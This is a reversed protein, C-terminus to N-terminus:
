AGKPQTPAAQLSRIQNALDRWGSLAVACAYAAGGALVCAILQPLPALEVQRTLAVAGAMVIACGVSQRLAALMAGPRMGVARASSALLPVGVLLTASLLGAATGTLGFWVGAGVGALTAGALGLANRFQLDARGIGLLVASTVAFVCLVFSVPALMALPAGVAVWKPGLVAEVLLDATMALGAALPAVALSVGSLAVGYLRVREARSGTRAIAPFIVMFLPGGVLMEPLRIIQYAMSYVGLPGVGLARGVILNDLNRALFDAIRSGLSHVGFALHPRCRAADFRLRPTFGAQWSVIALKVTWACLQQGVLAWAGWGAYAGGVAVLAGAATSGVDGAAFATFRGASHLRANPVTVLASMVVVPALAVILPALQPESALWAFPASLLALGGALALSLALTLWFITSETTADLEKERVLAGGLGADAVLNTVLVFPMALAVLGYPEPGLLRALVPLLVLQAGIRFGNSGALALVSKVANPIKM